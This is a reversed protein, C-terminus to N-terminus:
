AALTVPMEPHSALANGAADRVIATKLDNPNGYAEGAGYYTYDVQRVVTWTGDAGLRRLTVNALLGQNVGSPVYSYLWSETAAPSQGPPTSRVIGTPKGDATWSTVITTDGNADTMSLFRGWQSIGPLGEWGNFHIQDGATDTLIFQEGVSILKDQTFFRPAWNGGNYDFFLANTGSLIVIATSFDNDPVVFPLQTDVWGKGNLTLPQGDTAIVAYGPSNSWSRTQSWPAGFGDSTLDTTSMAVTGDFYRV